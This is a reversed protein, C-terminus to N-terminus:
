QQTAKMVAYMIASEETEFQKSMDLMSYTWGDGDTRRNTVFYVDTALRKLVLLSFGRSNGWISNWTNRCGIWSNIEPTGPDLHHVVAGKWIGAVWLFKEDRKMHTDDAGM